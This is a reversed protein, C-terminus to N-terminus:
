SQKRARALVESLPLVTEGDRWTRGECRHCSSLSLLSGDAVTMSLHSVQTSGCIACPIRPHSQRHLLSTPQVIM